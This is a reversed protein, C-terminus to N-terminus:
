YDLKWFIGIGSENDTGVNSELSIRPTLEVEIVVADTGPSLGKKVEVYVREHVYKGLGFQTHGEEPDRTIDLDDLGIFDRVQGLMDTGTRGTALTRAANVLALAQFPSINSLDRGFLVWALIEDEPMPPDSSLEIQPELAPGYVRVNILMDRQRYDARIDVTPAPPYSGDLNIISERSLIFRRDLIELRGRVINLSGRVAPSSAEGTVTLEGEWESDLGRGRVFVRSPFVLELDLIVPYHEGLPPREVTERDPPLNIETVELDVVGPPAQEPLSADVSRFIIRGSVAAQSRDGSIDLDGNEVYIEAMTHNIIRMGDIDMALNWPVAEALDIFGTGSMRGNLGDSASIESITIRSQDAVASLELDTIYIGADMHEYSANRVQITGQLDPEALTGSVTFESDFTGSLLQDPPLLIMALTELELSSNFEGSLPETDPLAANFPELSFDVPLNFNLGALGTQNQLLSAELSAQGKAISLGVILELARPIELHPAAPALGEINLDAMIVPSAPKGTLRIDLNLIGLIHDLHQVPIKELDLGKLEISANVEDRTLIGGASLSGTDLILNFPSLSTREQGHVFVSPSDLYMPEHAFTGHLDSLEIIHEAETAAYRGAFSLDLPHHFTGALTSSFEINDMTGQLDVTLQEIETQPARFDSINIESHFAGQVSIDEMRGSAQIRSIFFDEFELADGSLSITVNQDNQPATLNIESKIAGSIDLDFFEGLSSLDPIDALIDGRALSTDLDFDLEALLELGHGRASLNSLELNNEMFVFDTMLDLRKGTQMIFMEINGAPWGDLIAVNIDAELNTPDLQEYVLDEVRILADIDPRAIKGYANLDISLAGSFDMELAEGIGELSAMILEGSYDMDMDRFGMSGSGSFIFERADLMARSVHLFLDQGISLSGELRPREGALVNLVPNDAQFEPMAIDVDAFYHFERIDGGGRIVADMDSSFFTDRNLGPILQQAQHAYTKLDASFILTSLDMQGALDARLDRAKLDLNKLVLVNRATHDLDFNFVFNEPLNSYQQINFDSLLINGSAAYITEPSPRLKFDTSLEAQSISLGHGSVDGAMVRFNASVEDVPGDFHVIVDLPDSSEFGSGRLLLSIDPINLSFTGSASMQEPDFLADGKLGLRPSDIDLSELIIRQSHDLGVEMFLHLPDKTFDLGQAPLLFPSVFLEGGAQLFYFEEERIQLDLSANFMDEGDLKLGGRWSSLPGSGELQMLISSPWNDMPVLSKIIDSDHVTLDLDLYHPDRTLHARLSLRSTPKDLRNISLDALSFGDEDASLMGELSLEANGDLVQDSIQISTLYLHEVTLAPLPWSWEIDEPPAPIEDEQPETDTEPLRALDVTAAGLEFIHIERSLLRSFSWRLRAQSISLWTGLEDEISINEIELDFPVRGSIGTITVRGEDWILANNLRSEIFRQGPDTQIFAIALGLLLIVLALVSILVILINRIYKKM